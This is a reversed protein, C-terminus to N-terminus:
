LCTSVRGNTYVFRGGSGLTNKFQNPNLSEVHGDAFPINTINNGHHFVMMCNSDRITYDFCYNQCNESKRYTEFYLGFIAPKKHKKMEYITSQSRWIDECSGSNMVPHIIYQGTCGGDREGAHNSVWNPHGSYAYTVAYCSRYGDNATGNAKLLDGPYVPEDPCQVEKISSLYTPISPASAKVYFFGTVLAYALMGTCADAKYAAMVVEDNDNSYMVTALALQKQNNVCSIAKAKAKAKSLAPLLMSALIAIIAIVVLLEILTFNRRLPYIRMTFTEKKKHNYFACHNNYKWFTLFDVKAPFFWSFLTHALICFAFPPFTTLPLPAQVDM